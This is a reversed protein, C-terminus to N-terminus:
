AVRETAVIEEEIDEIDEVDTRHLCIFQTDDAAAVFKHFSGAPVVISNPAKVVYPEQGEIEVVVAGRSVLSMHDYKHKHSVIFWGVEKLDIVRAYVGCDMFHVLPLDILANKM